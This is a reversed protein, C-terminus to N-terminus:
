GPVRHSGSSLDVFQVRSKIFANGTMVGLAVRSGASLYRYDAIEVVVLTGADGSAKPSGDQSAFTAGIATAEDQM